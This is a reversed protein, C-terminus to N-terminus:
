DKLRARIFLSRYASSYPVVLNVNKGILKRIVDKIFGWLTDIRIRKIEVIIFGERELFAKIHKEGAFILHDPLSLDGPVYKRKVDAANGTELFIEANPLLKNKIEKLFSSFDPIHSFVNILSVFQFKEQITDLYGEKINL